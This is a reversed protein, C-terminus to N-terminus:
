LSSATSISPPWEAISLMGAAYARAVLEARNRAPARRLMDAIHQAVTHRSIHLRGSVESNTLGAAVLCLIAMERATLERLFASPGVSPRMTEATMQAANSTFVVHCAAECSRFIIDM